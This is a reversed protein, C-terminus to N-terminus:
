QAPFVPTLESLTIYVVPGLGSKALHLDALNLFKTMASQDAGPLTTSPHFGTMMVHPAALPTGDWNEDFM